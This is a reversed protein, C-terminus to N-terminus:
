LAVEEGKPRWGLALRKAEAIQALTMEKGLIDLAQIAPDLGQEAALWAWKFAQVIDQPVGEGKYYMLGVHNQGGGSGQEAARLFWRFAEQYDKKGGFGYRHLAGLNNQAQANGSDAARRYWKRALEYDQPVGQGFRYMYGVMNQAQANGQAALPAWERMATSYDEALYADEGAQYDAWVPVMLVLTFGVIFFPIRSAPHTIM